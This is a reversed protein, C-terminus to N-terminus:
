VGCNIVLRRDHLVPVTDTVVFVLLCPPVEERECSLFVFHFDHWAVSVAFLTTTSVLVSRKDSIGELPRALLFELLLFELLSGSHVFKCIVVQPMRAQGIPM